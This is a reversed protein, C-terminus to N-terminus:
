GHFKREKRKASLKLSTKATGKEPVKRGGMTNKTKFMEEDESIHNINANADENSNANNNNTITREGWANNLLHKYKESYNTEVRDKTNDQEKSQANNNNNDNNNVDETNTVYPKRMNDNDTKEM